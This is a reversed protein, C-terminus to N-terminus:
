RPLAFTFLADAEIRAGVPDTAELWDAFGPQSPLYAELMAEKLEPRGPDLVDFLEARGHVTVALAEGPLHSASIAPRQALHRMRVSRRSSSFHFAGHLWYGDVPGALPRGDATVTAVVLLCMGQLRSCLAEADLRRDPTIVEALHAGARAASADLLAQLAVLEEPTEHV